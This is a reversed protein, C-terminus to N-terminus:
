NLLCGILINSSGYKLSNHKKCYIKRQNVIYLLTGRAYIGDAGPIYLLPFLADSRVRHM